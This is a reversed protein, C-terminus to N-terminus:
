HNSSTDDAIVMWSGGMFGGWQNTRVWWDKVMPRAVVRQRAAAVAEATSVESEWRQLAESAQPCCSNSNSIAVKMALNM